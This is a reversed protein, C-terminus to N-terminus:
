KKKFISRTEDIVHGLTTELKVQRCTPEWEEGKPTSQCDYMKMKGNWKTQVVVYHSQSAPLPSMNVTYARSCGTTITLLLSTTLLRIKMKFKRQTLQLCFIAINSPKSYLIMNLCQTHRKRVRCEQKINFTM